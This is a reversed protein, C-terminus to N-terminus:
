RETARLEGGNATPEPLPTEAPEDGLGDAANQVGELAIAVLAFAKFIGVVGLPLLAPEVENGGRAPWASLGLTTAILTAIVLRKLLPHVVDDKSDRETM